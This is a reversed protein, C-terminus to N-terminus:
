QIANQLKLSLLTTVQSLSAKNKEQKTQIHMLLYQIALQTHTNNQQGEMSIESAM